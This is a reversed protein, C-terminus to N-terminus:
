VQIVFNEMWRANKQYMTPEALKAISITNMTKDIKEM